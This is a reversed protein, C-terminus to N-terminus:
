NRSNGWFIGSVLCGDMSGEGEKLKEEKTFGIRRSPQFASFFLNFFSPMCVFLRLAVAEKLIGGAAPMRPLWKRNVLGLALQSGFPPMDYGNALLVFFAFL